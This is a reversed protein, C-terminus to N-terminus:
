LLCSVFNSYDCFSLVDKFMELSRAITLGTLMLNTALIDSM